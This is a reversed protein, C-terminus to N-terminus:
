SNILDYVNTDFKDIFEDMNFDIISNNRMRWKGNIMVDTVDQGHASYVLHSILSNYNTIPRLHPQKLDIIILDALYKEKIAGSNAWGLVNAGQYTAMQLSKSAPIISPDQNKSKQTLAAMKMTEFLDLNNNSSPGDTGLGVRNGGAMKDIRPINHGLKMNAVPNASIGVNHEKLIKLDNDSCEVSHAAIMQEDLIDLKALYEVPSKISTEVEFGNKVAFDQILKLEGKGEALHTHIFLPPLNTKENFDQKYQYVEKYEEDSVTYPAHPNLAVRILDDKGHWNAILKENDKLKTVGTIIPPGSLLRVGMSHFAKAESQPYWYMSNVMTCGSKISEVAAMKAGIEVLEPTLKAEIPWIYDNLWSHLPIDDAWGRFLTMAAHTHANVLGPMLVHQPFDYVEDTSIDQHTQVASIKNGSIILSGNEIVKPQNEHFSLIYKARIGIEM